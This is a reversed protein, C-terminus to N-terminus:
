RQDSLRILHELASEYTSHVSLKEKRRTLKAVMLGVMGLLQSKVYLALHETNPHIFFSERAGELFHEPLAVSMESADLLIYRPGKDLGLPQVIMMDSYSLENIIKCVVINARPSPHIEYPM